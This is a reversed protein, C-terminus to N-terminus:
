SNASRRFGLFRHDTEQPRTIHNAGDLVERVTRVLTEPTFPKQIYTVASEHVAETRDWYGSMFLIPTPRLSKLRAALELGNMGPMIVDTLVLHVPGTHTEALCLAEEGCSAEVIHYGFQRLISCTMERVQAQDEVVLVTEAGCPMDDPLEVHSKEITPVATVRPWYIRFTTGQRPKSDVQIWGDGQSVIGYV